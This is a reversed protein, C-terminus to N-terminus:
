GFSLNVFIRIWPLKKHLKFSPSLSPEALSNKTRVRFLNLQVPVVYSPPSIAKPRQYRTATMVHCQSALPLDFCSAPWREFLLKSLLCLM